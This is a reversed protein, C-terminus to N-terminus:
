RTRSAACPRFLCVLADACEVFLKGNVVAANKFLPRHGYVAAEDSCNLLEGSKTRLVFVLVADNADSRKVSLTVVDSHLTLETTRCPGAGVPALQCEWLRDGEPLKFATVTPNTLHGRRERYGHLVIASDDLLLVQDTKVVRGRVEPIDVDIEHALDALDLIRVSSNDRHLAVFRSGASLPSRRGYDCRISVLREQPHMDLFVDHLHVSRDRGGYTVLLVEPTMLSYASSNDRFLIRGNRVDRCFVGCPLQQHLIAGCVAASSERPKTAVGAGRWVEKGTRINVGITEGRSGLWVM